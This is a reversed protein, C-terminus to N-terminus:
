QNSKKREKKEMSLLSIDYACRSIDVTDLGDYYGRIYREQDLLVIKQTHIFDDIDGDGPQLSLGLENRAFDYIAKKDGTLFWWRDHNAGFRDAYERLVPFSDKAPDVTISLLQIDEEISIKKKPDKRFANQLMKMNGTLNPCVTPCNTFIFNVALIKGKLDKNLSITDGLQNVLQLDKTQYFVTDSHKEGNQTYSNIAAVRYFEPMAIKDEGVIKAIIYFSFPLLLAVAIGILYKNKRKPQEKM